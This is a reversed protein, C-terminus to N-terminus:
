ASRGLCNVCVKSGVLDALALLQRNLSQISISERRAVKSNSSEAHARKVHVGLIEATAHNQHVSLLSDPPPITSLSHPPSNCTKPSQIKWNPSVNQPSLLHCNWVGGIWVGSLVPRVSSEALTISKLTSGSSAKIRSCTLCHM